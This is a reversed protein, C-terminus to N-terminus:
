SNRLIIPLYVWSKMFQFKEIIIEVEQGDTPANGNFLWLNIRANVPGGSPIDSGTYEWMELEDAPNFVPGYGKHGAFKVSNAQWDFRHTSQSGSWTVSFPHTNAVVTYPQVTYQANNPNAINGFKSFEIDIERNNVGAPAVGDWTFLGLVVNSDLSNVPSDLYFIYEGFGLAKQIYVEASYWKGDRQVIKLHLRGEGDVWVDNTSDSFYNPGPGIPTDSNKVYWVYGSFNLTRPTREAQTYAVSNNYLESPLTPSGTLTPPDYGNPILFAVIRTASHDLGGTTIDTTWTYDPQIATLPNASTPKVWWSSVFIYVVIKYDSPNVCAVQGELDQFSGYPPIDTYSIGPSCANAVTADLCLSGTAVFTITLAWIVIRYILKIMSITNGYAMESKSGSITWISHLEM